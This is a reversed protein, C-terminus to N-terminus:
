QMLRWCESLAAAYRPKIEDRWSERTCGLSHGDLIHLRWRCLAEYRLGSHWADSDDADLVFKVSGDPKPWYSSQMGTRAAYGPSTVVEANVVQKALWPKGDVKLVACEIAALAKPVDDWSAPEYVPASTACSVLVLLAAKM